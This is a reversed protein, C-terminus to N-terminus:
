GEIHPPMEHSPDRLVDFCVIYNADSSSHSTIFHNPIETPNNRPINYYYGPPHLTLQELEVNTLVKYETTVVDDGTQLLWNLADVVSDKVISLDLGYKSKIVQIAVEVLAAVDSKYKDPDGFDHEMVVVVLSVPVTSGHWVSAVPGVREENNDVGSYYRTGQQVPHRETHIVNAGSPAIHVASTIVYIEDSAANTQGTENQCFLGQYRITYIPVTSAHESENGATQAHNAVVQELYNAASGQFQYGSVTESAQPPLTGTEPTVAVRFDSKTINGLKSNRTPEPVSTLAGIMRKANNTHNRESLAAVISTELPTEAAREGSLIRLIAVIDGFVQPHRPSPFNRAM